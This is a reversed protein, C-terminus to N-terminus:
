FNRRCKGSLKEFIATKDLKLEPHFAYMQCYSIVIMESNHLIKGGTTTEFDFYVTFHLDGMYKFNDQFAISKNNEFEYVIGSINSCSKIHKKFTGYHAIYKGCYYCHRTTM